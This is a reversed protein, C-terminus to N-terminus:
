PALVNLRAKVWLLLDMPIREEHIKFSAEGTWYDDLPPPVLTIWGRRHLQEASIAFDYCACYELLTSYLLEAQPPNDQQEASIKLVPGVVSPPIPTVPDNVSAEVAEHYAAIDGAIAELWEDSLNRPL